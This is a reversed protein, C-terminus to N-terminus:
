LDDGYPSLLRSLDFGTRVLSDVCQRTYDVQNYCAFTIAVDSASM